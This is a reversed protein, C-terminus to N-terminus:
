RQVIGGKCAKGWCGWGMMGAKADGVASWWIAFRWPLGGHEVSKTALRPLPLESCSSLSRKASYTMHNHMITYLQPIQSGSLIHCQLQGGNQRFFLKIYGLWPGHMVLRNMNGFDIKLQKLQTVSNTCSACLTFPFKQAGEPWNFFRIDFCSPVKM